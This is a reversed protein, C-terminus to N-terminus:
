EAVPALAASYVCGEGRSCTAAFCAAGECQRSPRGHAAAADDTASCTAPPRPRPGPSLRAPAAPGGPVAHGALADTTPGTPHTPSAFCRGLGTPLMNGVPRCEGCATNGPLTGIVILLSKSVTALLSSDSM